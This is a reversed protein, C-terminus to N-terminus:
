LLLYNLDYEGFIFLQLIGLHVVLMSVCKLVLSELMLM